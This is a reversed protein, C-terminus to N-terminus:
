EVCFDRGTRTSPVVTDIVRKGTEMLTFTDAHFYYGGCNFNELLYMRAVKYYKLKENHIVVIDYFHATSEEDLKNSLLAPDTQKMQDIYSDYEIRASEIIHTPPNKIYEWASEVYRNYFALLQDIAIDKM